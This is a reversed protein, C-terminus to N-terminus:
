AAAKMMSFLGREGVEILHASLATEPRKTM